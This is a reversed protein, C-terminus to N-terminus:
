TATAQAVEWEANAEANLHLKVSTQMRVRVTAVTSTVLVPPCTIHKKITWGNVVIESSTIETRPPNRHFKGCINIMQIAM